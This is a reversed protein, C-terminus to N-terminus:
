DGFARHLFAAMQGRTVRETPCFTTTTCGAAIGAEAVRNIDGEFTSSSDDGFHDGTAPPLERARALFAAMQGRTVAQTPCFRTATCGAAIGAEAVRNIDGEFASGNDDSFHDSTAPPLALARALFAAMHQRSVSANTCFFDAGCGATIGSDFLWTIDGTFASSEWDNTCTHGGDHLTVANSTTSFSIQRYTCQNTENEELFFGYPDVKARVTYTGGPLGTIDVWQWALYWEYEDGWGISIGMRNNLANPTTQCWSGRYYSSSGAGPLSLNYPDSDLFCFGVKAGRFTGSPGWMDYRMMEQVHWHDHGDGSWKGYADTPVIRSVASNRASTEYLVQNVIMPQSTSARSGRVEFHGSGINVMM